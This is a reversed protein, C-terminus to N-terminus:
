QIRLLDDCTTKIANKANENKSFDLELFANEIIEKSKNQAMQAYMFIQNKGLKIIDCTPNEQKFYIYPLTYIGNKIDDQSSLFNKIDNNLQFVTGFDYAFKELANKIEPKAKKIECVSQAACVFLNATKAATKQLYEKEGQIKFRADFQNIEGNITKLINQSFIESIKTNQIKSLVLLCLSLLYDGIIISKKSGFKSYFSDNERRKTSEDIVDDHVLTASHLLEICLAINQIDKDIEEDLLFTCLYTFVPRIRKSKAFLFGLIDQKLENSNEEVVTKLNNELTSIYPKLIDDPKM